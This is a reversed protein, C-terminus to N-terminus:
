ERPEGLLRNVDVGAQEKGNSTLRARLEMIGRRKTNREEKCKETASITRDIRGDGERSALACNCLFHYREKSYSKPWIEIKDLNWGPQPGANNHSIHVKCLEGIDATLVEFTDLKGQEFNNDRNDLLLSQSTRKNGFLIIRVNADTGANQVSSTYVQIEWFVETDGFALRKMEEFTKGKATLAPLLSACVLISLVLTMAATLNQTLRHRYLYLRPRTPHPPQHRHEPKKTTETDITFILRDIGQTCFFPVSLSTSDHFLASAQGLGSM